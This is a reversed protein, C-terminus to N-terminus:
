TRMPIAQRGGLTGLLWWTGHPAETLNGSALAIIARGLEVVPGTAIAASGRPFIKFDGHVSWSEIEEAAILERRALRSCAHESLKIFTQMESFSWTTMLRFGMTPLARRLAGHSLPNQCGLPIRRITKRLPM